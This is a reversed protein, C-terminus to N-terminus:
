KKYRFVRCPPPNEIKSKRIEILRDQRSPANETFNSDTEFGLTFKGSGTRNLEEALRFDFIRGDHRTKWPGSWPVASSNMGM